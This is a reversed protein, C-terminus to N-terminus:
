GYNYFHNVVLRESAFSSVIQTHIDYIKKLAEGVLYTISCPKVLTPLVARIKTLTWWTVLAASQTYRNRTHLTSRGSQFLFSKQPQARERVIRGGVGGLAGSAKRM